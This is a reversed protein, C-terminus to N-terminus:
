KDMTNYYHFPFLVALLLAAVINSTFSEDNIIRVIALVINLLFVVVMALRTVKTIKEKNM